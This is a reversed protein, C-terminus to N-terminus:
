EEEMQSSILVRMNSQEQKECPCGVTVAGILICNAIESGNDTLVLLVRASTGCLARLNWSESANEIQDHKVQCVGSLTLLDLTVGEGGLIASRLGACAEDIDVLVLRGRGGIRFRVECLLEELLARSPDGRLSFFIKSVLLGSSTIAAQKKCYQYPKAITSTHHIQPQSM